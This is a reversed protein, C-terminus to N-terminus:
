FVICATGNVSRGSDIDDELANLQQQMRQEIQFRHAIIASTDTPRRKLFARPSRPRRDIEPELHNTEAESFREAANRRIFEQHSNVLEPYQERTPLYNKM